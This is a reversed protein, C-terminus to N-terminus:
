LLYTTVYTYLFGHAWQFISYGPMIPPQQEFCVSHQHLEPTFRSDHRYSCHPVCCSPMAPFRRPVQASLTPSTQKNQHRETSKTLKAMVTAQLTTHPFRQIFYTCNVRVKISLNPPFHTQQKFFDMAHFNGM